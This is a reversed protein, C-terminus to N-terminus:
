EFFVMTICIAGLLGATLIAYLRALHGLFRYNTNYACKWLSVMLLLYFPLFFVWGIIVTTYESLNLAYAARSYNLVLKLLIALGISGFLGIVFSKWLPLNAIVPNENSTPM